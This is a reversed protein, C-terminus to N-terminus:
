WQTDSEPIGAGHVDSSSVWGFRGRYHGTAIQIGIADETGFRFKPHVVNQVCGSIVAAVGPHILIAHPLLIKRTDASGGAYQVLRDRSDWVLVDPDDAGGFLTIRDGRNVHCDASAIAASLLLLMAAIALRRVM